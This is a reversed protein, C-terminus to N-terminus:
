ATPMMLVMKYAVLCACSTLQSEWPLLALSEIWMEHFGVSNILM